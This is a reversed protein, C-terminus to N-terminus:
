KNPVRKFKLKMSFTDTMELADGTLKSITGGGDAEQDDLDEIKLTTRTVLKNGTLKYTGTFKGTKDDGLDVVGSAKGDATFEITVRPGDKPEIQQWKGILLKGDIKEEKKDEASAGCALLVFLWTGIITRM